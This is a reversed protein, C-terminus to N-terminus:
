IANGEKVVYTSDSSANGPTVAADVKTKVGLSAAFAQYYAVSKAASAAFTADKAYARYLIYDLLPNTYVDDLSIVATPNTSANYTCDAPEVSYLVEVQVVITAHPRPYVYFHKPDRPDEMFHDISAQGADSHWTPQLSDLVQRSILRIANGPTAGDVGMNRVVDLLRIGGTPISQKTSNATLTISANTVSADPRLLVIERQGSNLWGQLEAIPWRVNAVDNLITSANNLISIVLM